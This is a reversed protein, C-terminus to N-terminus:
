LFTFVSILQNECFQSFQGLMPGYMNLTLVQFNIFIVAIQFLHRFKPKISDFRKM